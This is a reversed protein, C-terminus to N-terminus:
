GGNTARWLELTLEAGPAAGVAAFVEVCLGPGCQIPDLYGAGVGEIPPGYVRAPISTVRGGSGPCTLTNRGTRGDMVLTSDAPIETVTMDTCARCPNLDPLRGCDIDLPNTYFRVVLNRLPARGATVRIVPVVDLSSPMVGSPVPIVTRHASFPEAPYCRPLPEPPLPEFHYPECEMPVQCEEVPPCEQYAELLNVTAVPGDGPRVTFTMEAGPARWVQVNRTRLTAEYRLVRAAGDYGTERLLPGEVTEADMVYRMPDPGVLEGTDEDVVPCCAIMCLESGVCGDACPNPSFVNSLWGHIYDVACEDSVFVDFYVTMERFLGGSAAGTRRETVGDWARSGVIGTVFASEPVAPDYWPAPDTTVTGYPEGMNLWEGAEDPCPWCTAQAVGCADTSVAYGYARANSVVEIGGVVLYFPLM